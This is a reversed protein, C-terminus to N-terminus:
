TRKYKKSNNLGESQHLSLRVRAYPDRLQHMPITCEKADSRSDSLADLVATVAAM